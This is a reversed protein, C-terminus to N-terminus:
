RVSGGIEVDIKNAGSALTSIRAEYLSIKYETYAPETAENDVVSQTVDVGNVQLLTFEPAASNVTLYLYELDWAAGMMLTSSLAVSLPYTHDHVGDMTVGNKVYVAHAWTKSDEVSPAISEASTEVSLLGGPILGVVLVMAMFIASIRKFRKM